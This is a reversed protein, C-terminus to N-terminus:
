LLNWKWRCPSRPGYEPWVTPRIEGALTISKTLSLLEQFAILLELRALPAGACQHPGRGFALHDKRKRDMDFQDAHPFVTEDRNASAYILAIPEGRM